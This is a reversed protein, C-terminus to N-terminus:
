LSVHVQGDLTWSDPSGTQSINRTNIAQVRLELRPIPFVLFGFGWKWFDPSSSKFEQNYREVTTVLNYGRTLLVLAELMNYSGTQTIVSTSTLIQNKILGYEFMLTSGKTLAHRYHLAAMDKTELHSKGTFVSVGIRRNEGIGYEGMMSFGSQKHDADEYPNGFFANASIEWNEEIKQLIIGESESIGDTTGTQVNFGQYTRQFSTHDDNRIGFVKEMLGAYLWWTKVVEGRVYYDRAFMHDVSAAQKLVGFQESNLLRGVTAVAAIKGDQSQLALGFDTQMQYYKSSGSSKSGPNTWVEIGRYDIDPRIWYPLKVPGLFGSQDALKEDNMSNPFLARSAIEASWLGRGYDNLPGGGNGNFHCTLCSVYGYGIFEPYASAKFAFALTFFLIFKM